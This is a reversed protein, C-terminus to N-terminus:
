ISSCVDDRGGALNKLMEDFKLFAEKDEKIGKEKKDSSMCYSWHWKENEQDYQCIKTAIPIRKEKDCTLEWVSDLRKKSKDDLQVMHFIYDFSKAVKVQMFDIDGGVAAVIEASVNYAFDDPESTHYTVKSRRTGKNAVTVAINLDLGTRAEAMIIYDADSRLVQEVITKLRDENAVLQMIPAEPMIKHLPIEPNTEIMLGELTPDEYSQWTELFTTKATRVAGTFAVNYGCKIMEKFLPVMDESITGRRVQEEFTYKPIIFRRLVITEQGKKAIGYTSTAERFITVRTGDRMFVEHHNKNFKESPDNSLFAKILQNRRDDSISQPMLVLRGNKMFYIRNGIIKASSSDKYEQSFWEALGAYGYIEHFVADILDEYYAPFEESELNQDKLYKLIEEQYRKIASEEGLIAEKQLETVKGYENREAASELFVKDLHARVNDCLTYFDKM